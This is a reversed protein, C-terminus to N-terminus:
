YYSTLSPDLVSYADLKPSYGMAFPNPAQNILKSIGGLNEKVYKQVNRNYALTKGNPLIMTLLNILPSNDFQQISLLKRVSSNSPLYGKTSSFPSVSTGYPKPSCYLNNIM